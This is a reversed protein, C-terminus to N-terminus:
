GDAFGVRGCHQAHAARASTLMAQVSNAECKRRCEGGERSRERLSITEPMVGLLARLALTKEAVSPTDPGSSRAARARVSPKTAPLMNPAEDVLSTPCSERNAESCRAADAGSRPAVDSRPPLPAWPSDYMPERPALMGRWSSYVGAASRADYALLLALSLPARCNRAPRPM